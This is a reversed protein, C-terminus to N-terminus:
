RKTSMKIKEKEINGLIRMLISSTKEIDSQPINEVSLTVVEEFTSQVYAAVDEGKKTLFLRDLRKDAQDKEKYVFGDSILNAVIKAVTSKGVFLADSLAKQPVGQNKSIVLFYDYHGNRIAIDSFKLNLVGQMSRYIAANLKGISNM